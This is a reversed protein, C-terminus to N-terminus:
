IEHCFQNSFNEYEKMIISFDKIRNIYKSDYKENNFYDYFDKLCYYMNDDVIEKDLIKENNKYVIVRSNRLCSLEKDYISYELSIVTNDNCYITMGKHLTNSTLDCQHSIIVGNNNLLSFSYGHNKLTRDINQMDKQELLLLNSRNDLLYDCIYIQHPVEIEFNETIKNSMGRMNFSENIRNKSFNTMIAKICLNNNEIYDKVFNTTLSYIYNQIMVINLKPHKVFFDEDVVFPKEVIINYLNLNECTEIVDVFVEKPTVIDVIVNNVDLNNKKLVDKIPIDIDAYYINGIKDFKKYSMTHIKSAKGKGVIIIDKM